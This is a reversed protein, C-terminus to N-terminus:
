RKRKPKKKTKTPSQKLTLSSTTAQAGAPSLILKTTLKGHHKRLLTRGKANLPVTVTASAGAAVAYRGRAVVAKTPKKAKKKKRAASAGVADIELAGACPGASSCRLVLAVKGKTVKATRTALSAAGAAPLVLPPAPTTTTASGGGGAGSSSSSPSSLSPMTFSRTPGFVANQDSGSHIAAVRYDYSKGPELDVVDIAGEQPGTGTGPITVGASIFPSFPTVPQGAPVIHVGYVTAVGTTDIKVPLRAAYHGVIVPDETQVAPLTGGLPATTFTQDPTTQTGFPTTITVRYHYLTGPDLFSFFTSTTKPAAPSLSSPFGEQGYSTTKGFEARTRSGAGKNDIPYQIGASTPTVATTTSTGVTPSACATGTTVNISPTVPTADLNAARDFAASSYSHPGNCLSSVSRNFPCTNPQTADVSCIFNGGTGNRESSAVIWQASTSATDGSPGSQLFTEPATTDVTFREVVPTPDTTGGTQARVAFTHDGSTLGDFSVPSSCGGFAAGDLSCELAGGPPESAFSFSASHRPGSLVTAGGQTVSQATYSSDRSISTDPIPRAVGPGAYSRLYFSGMEGAFGTLDVHYTTGGTATFTVRSGNGSFGGACADDNSGVEVAAGITAGTYVGLVTDMDSGRDCTEVTYQGSTAPTFVYWISATCLPGDTIAVCDGSRAAM